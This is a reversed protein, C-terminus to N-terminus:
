EDSSFGAGMDSSCLITRISFIAQLHATLLWLQAKMQSQLKQRCVEHPIQLFM